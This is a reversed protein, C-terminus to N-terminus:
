SGTYYVGSGGFTRDLYASSAIGALYLNGTPYSLDGQINAIANAQNLTEGLPIMNNFRSPHAETPFGSAVFGALAADNAKIGIKLGILTMYPMAVLDIEIDVNHGSLTTSNWTLTDGSITGNNWRYHYHNGALPINNLQLSLNNKLKIFASNAVYELNGGALKFAGTEMNIENVSQGLSNKSVLVGVGIRDADMTHAKIRDGHMEGATIFDAVIKGDQTIATGYPGEYGSNSHGLGGLNWRWINLADDINDNDMILIEEPKGYQNEKIVVYGGNNGTIQQTANDIAGQIDVMSPTNERVDHITNDQEVIVSSINTRSNGLEISEYRDNLFDWVTKVVKATANVGLKEFEVTVTDCLQVRELVAVNKYEETDALNVFSVDLSVAPIGIDHSNLYANAATNLQEVTPPEDPYNGSVDVIGIRPMATYQGGVNRQVVESYICETENKYYLVVGTIMNEISEDQKLDTLNKGYRIQVGANQGRNQWLKIKPRQYTYDYDWEYEGGWVDLISGEVGGLRGRLPAVEGQKYTNPTSINSELTLDCQIMAKNKLLTLADTASLNTGTCPEVPIFNARYTLHRAYFIVRGKMPKSAEYIEFPQKRNQSCSCFIIRGIKIESFYRGEVPYEFEVIFIGNREETVLGKIMDPLRCIGNSTFATESKEYLIPIM